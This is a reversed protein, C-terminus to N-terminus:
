RRGSSLARGKGIPAKMQSNSLGKGGSKAGRGGGPKVGKRNSSLNGAPGSAINTNVGSIHPLPM